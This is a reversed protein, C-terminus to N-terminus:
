STRMAGEGKGGDTLEELEQDLKTRGGRLRPCRPLKELRHSARHHQPLFRPCHRKALLGPAGLAERPNLLDSSVAM